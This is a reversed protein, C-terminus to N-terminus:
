KRYIGRFMTKVNYEIRLRTDVRLRISFTKAQRKDRCDVGLEQCIDRSESFFQM